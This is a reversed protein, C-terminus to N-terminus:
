MIRGLDMRFRALKQIKQYSLIRRPWVFHALEKTYSEGKVIKGSSLIRRPMACISFKTKMQRQERRESDKCRYIQEVSSVINIRGVSGGTSVGAPAQKKQLTGSSVTGALNHSDRPRSDTPM